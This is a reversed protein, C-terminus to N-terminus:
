NTPLSNSDTDRPRKESAAGYARQARSNMYRLLLAIAFVLILLGAVMAGLIVFHAPQFLRM